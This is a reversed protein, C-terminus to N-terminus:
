LRVGRDRRRCRRILEIAVPVNRLARRAIAVGMTGCFPQIPIQIDDRLPATFRNTLDFHRIYPQAFDESLLGLGPIIGTWGWQLPELRLIDVELIDGPEAGEIFIPGALPYLQSFDIAGLASAPCGPTIQNNTVEATECHVTDGSKIAIAPPISKDWKHHVKRKDLSHDRGTM